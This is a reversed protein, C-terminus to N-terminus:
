EDEDEDELGDDFYDELDDDEDEVADITEGFMAATHEEVWEQVTADDPWERASDDLDNPRAIKVAQRLNYTHGHGDCDWLTILRKDDSLERLVLHCPGLHPDLLFDNAKVDLVSMVGLDEAEVIGGEHPINMM